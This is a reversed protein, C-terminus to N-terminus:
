HRARRRDLELGALCTSRPDAEDPCSSAPLPAPVCRVIMRQVRELFTQMTAVVKWVPTSTAARYGDHGVLWEAWDWLVRPSFTKDRDGLMVLVKKYNSRCKFDAWYASDRQAAPAQM